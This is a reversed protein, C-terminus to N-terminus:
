ENPFPPAEGAKWVAPSWAGIGFTSSGTGATSLFQGWPDLGTPASWGFPDSAGRLASANVGTDDVLDSHLDVHYGLDPQMVSYANTNTTRYTGFHVHPGTSSGSTGSYGIIQGPAVTQGDQVLRQGLHAYYAMFTERYRDGTGVDYEIWLEGQKPTGQTNSFRSIDRDRSGGPIVKGWGLSRLPTGENLFFDYSDNDPLFATIQRGRSNVATSLGTQGNGFDALNAACPSSACPCTQGSVCARAHDFRHGVLYGRYTTNAPTIMPLWAYTPFPANFVPLARPAVTFICRNTGHGVSARAGELAVTGNAGGVVRGDSCRALVDNYGTTSYLGARVITALPMAQLLTKCPDAGVFEFGWAGDLGIVNCYHGTSAPEPNRADVQYDNGLAGDTCVGPTVTAVQDKCTVMAENFSAQIRGYCFSGTHTACYATALRKTCAPDAADVLGNADNDRGDTCNEESFDYRYLHKTAAGGTGVTGIGYLVNSADASISTLKAGGNSFGLWSNGGNLLNDNYYLTGDANLGFARNRPVMLSTAGAGTASVVGLNNALQTWSGLSGQVKRNVQDPLASSLLTSTGLTTGAALAYINGMGSQIDLRSASMATLLPPLALPTNSATTSWSALLQGDPMTRVHWLQNVSDLAYLNARDCAIKTGKTGLSVQQWAGVGGNLNVWLSLNSRAAYLVGDGCSAIRTTAGDLSGVDSVVLKQGNVYSSAIVVASSATGLM